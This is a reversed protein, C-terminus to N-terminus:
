EHADKGMRASLKGTSVSSLVVHGSDVVIVSRTPKGGTADILKGQERAGKIMRKIPASNPNVIAIIRNSAVVNEFGIKLANKLERM